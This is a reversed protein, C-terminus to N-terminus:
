AFLGATVTEMHMSRSGKILIWDGPQLHQRLDAIIAPHDGTVVAEAPMGGADAGAAMAAANEGALYLRTAGIAAAKRGLEFHLQTAHNGLEAM